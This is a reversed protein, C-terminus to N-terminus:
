YVGPEFLLRDLVLASGGLLYVTPAWTREGIRTLGLKCLGQILARDVLYVRVCKTGKLSFASGYGVIPSGFSGFIELM